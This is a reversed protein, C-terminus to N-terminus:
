AHNLGVTATHTSCKCKIQAVPFKSKGVNRSRDNRILIAVQVSKTFGDADGENSNHVINDEQSFSHVKVRVSVGHHGCSYM